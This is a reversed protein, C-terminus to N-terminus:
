YRQKIFHSLSCSTSRCKVAYKLQNATQTTFGGTIVANGNLIAQNVTPAEIVQNDLVIAIRKGVNRKTIDAFKKTGDSTFM